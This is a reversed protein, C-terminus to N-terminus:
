HARCFRGFRNLHRKPQPSPHVGPVILHPGCGGCFPCNQPPLPLGNYLMAVSQQPSHLFSQISRSSMQTIFEAPGLSAHILHPGCVWAFPCNNPSLAHGVVSHWSSHLFPLVFRNAMQNDVQTPWLFCLNLQIRWTAGIHGGMLACQRWCAFVVSGDTQPLSAAKHWIVKVM